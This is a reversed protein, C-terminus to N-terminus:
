RVSLLDTDLEADRKRLLEIDDFVFMTLEAVNFVRGGELHGGFVKHDEGAAEVHLHVTDDATISGKLSLLEKAENFEDWSYDGSEKDYFGVKFDKLMGIAGIVFASDQEIEDMMKDLSEFLDDGDDLKAVLMNNEIEYEM